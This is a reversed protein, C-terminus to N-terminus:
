IIKKISYNKMFNEKLIQKYSLIYRSDLKNILLKFEPNKVITFPQLDIAVFDILSDTIPKSKLSFYPKFHLTTQHCKPKQYHLTYKSILHYRLTSTPNGPSYLKVYLTCKYNTISGSEEDQIKHFIITYFFYNLWHFRM